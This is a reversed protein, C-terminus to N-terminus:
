DGRRAIDGGREEGFDVVGEVAAVVGGGLGRLQPEIRNPETEREACGGASDLRREIDEAARNARAPRRNCWQGRCLALLHPLRQHLRPHNPFLLGKAGVARWLAFHRATPFLRCILRKEPKGGVARWNSFHCPTTSNASFCPPKPAGISNHRATTMRE